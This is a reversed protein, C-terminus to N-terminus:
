SYIAFGITKRPAGKEPKVMYDPVEDIRQEGDVWRIIDYYIGKEYVIIAAIIGTVPPEGSNEIKVKTKIPLVTIENM